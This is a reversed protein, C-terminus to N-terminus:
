LLLGSNPRLLDKKFIYNCMRFYGIVYTHIKGHPEIRQRIIIMRIYSEKLYDNEGSLRSVMQREEQM